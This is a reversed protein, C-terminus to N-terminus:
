SVGMGVFGVLRPLRFDSNPWVPPGFGSHFALRQLSVGAKWLPDNTSRREFDWAPHLRHRYMSETLKLVGDPSGCGFPTSVCVGDSVSGARTPPRPRQIHHGHKPDECVPSPAVKQVFRRRHRGAPPPIPPLTESDSVRPMCVPQTTLVPRYALFELVVSFQKTAPPAYARVALNAQARSRCSM